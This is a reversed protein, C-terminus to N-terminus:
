DRLAIVHGDMEARHRHGDAGRNLMTFHTRAVDHDEIVRVGPARM